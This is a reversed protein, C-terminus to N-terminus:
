RVRPRGGTAVQLVEREAIQKCDGYVYALLGPSKELEIMRAIADRMTPPDVVALEKVKRGFIAKESKTPERGAATMADTYAAVWDGEPARGRAHPEEQRDTQRTQGTTRSTVTVEGHGDQETPEGDRERARKSAQRAAAKQRERHQRNYDQWDHIELGDPHRDLWGCAVLSRILGDPDGEYYCGDAIDASSHDADLFGGPSQEVVYYWLAHLLGLTELVSLGLERRLRAFKRNRPITVYSEVWESM